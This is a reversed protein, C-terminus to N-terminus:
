PKYYSGVFFPLSQYNLTLILDTDYKPGVFPSYHQCGGVHLSIQPGERVILIGSRHFSEYAQQTTLHGSRHCQLVVGLGAADDLTQRKTDHFTSFSSNVLM